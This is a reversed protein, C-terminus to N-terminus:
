IEIIYTVLSLNSFIYYYTSNLNLSNAMLSIAFNFEWLFNRETPYLFLLMIKHASWDRGTYDQDLDDLFYEEGDQM